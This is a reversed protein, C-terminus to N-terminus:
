FLGRHKILIENNHPDLGNMVLLNLILQTNLFATTTENQLM